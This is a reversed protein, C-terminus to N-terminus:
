IYGKKAWLVDVVAGIVAFTLGILLVPITQELTLVLFVLSFLGLLVLTIGAAALGIGLSGIARPESM